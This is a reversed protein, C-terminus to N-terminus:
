IYSFLIKYDKLINFPYCFNEIGKTSLLFKCFYASELIYYSNLINLNNLGFDNLKDKNYDKLTDIYRYKENQALEM